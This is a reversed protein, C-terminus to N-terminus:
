ISCLNALSFASVFPQFTVSSVVATVSCNQAATFIRHAARRWNDSGRSSSPLSATAGTGVLGFGVPQPLDLLAALLSGCALV